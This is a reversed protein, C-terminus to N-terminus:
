TWHLLPRESAEDEESTAAGLLIVKVDGSCVRVLTSDGAVVFARDFATVVSDKAAVVVADDFALINAGLSFVRSSEGAGLLFRYARDGRNSRTAFSRNAGM